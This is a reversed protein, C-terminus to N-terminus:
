VIVLGRPTEDHLEAPWELELSTWSRGGDTSRFLGRNNAAYFEGPGDTALVARLVGEGTPLGDDEIRSWSEEGARRYVYSEGPTSHASGPGSAASVVITDPDGPDVAVSWCYRHDLGTQPYEWTDGGDESVAFGDGAAALVTRPVDPHTTLSHNDRRAGSPRDQWTEGGDDTRVLAGAEIGVYLRDADHPDPEIWRVHHTHPRPPFYWEDASPLATLGPRETWSRGGDISRYVRSPETGAWWVASDHPSVALSTVSTEMWDGTREFTEGGDTSRYLGADFTGVLVRDPRDPSAAVCELDHDDLRTRVTWGGSEGTVVLLRDRMAAYITPM